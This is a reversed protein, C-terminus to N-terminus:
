AIDIRQNRCQIFELANNRYTFYEDVDRPLPSGNFGEFPLLFKVGRYDHTVLDQLLFFDVYGQFSEFLQFFDEYRQLVASLPSLQGLYHRRICELTLDFRDFIKSNVGRAGNITMHGNIRNSPFLIYSGITSGSRLLIESDRDPIQNIIHAMRKTNRYSHTIADSSLRFNGLESQHYLNPKPGDDSLNFIVGNPLPKSWLHKHYSRLTPSSADPDGGEPTDSYMDFTIDIKAM